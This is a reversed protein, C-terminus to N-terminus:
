LAEIAKIKETFFNKSTGLLKYDVNSWSAPKDEIKCDQGTDNDVYGSIRSQYDRVRATASEYDMLASGSVVLSKLEKVYMQKFEPIAIIRTMLKGMNGWQLPNQKAPDYTNSTGLTNDYDFPLFYVKYDLKDQSNFYLYYNNGNNWHDDWMGVAVNVAYTRLLLDVDCVQKIWKVFSEDSKGNLKAIFDKLQALATQYDSGTEKLEYTFESSNNDEGFNANVSKLDAPGNSTYCCKWLNGGASSFDSERRELYKNDYPEIMTYVGYYAPSDDGEVKVWVRCYVAKGMTWVGARSFLDYCFPERVYTPDNNFWKLTMKSIGHIKHDKGKTFKRLNVGWHCHQWQASNKQHKGDGAKKEPRRRSTNGRLRAGADKIEYVDDGKRYTVDCHVYEKTKENKDYYSLLTNWESLSFSLTIEPIVSSDWVYELGDSSDTDGSPTNGGSEESPTDPTGPTLPGVDDKRCGGLLLALAAFAFILNRIKM